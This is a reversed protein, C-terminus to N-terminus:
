ASSEVEATGARSGADDAAADGDAALDAPASSWFYRFAALLTLALVAQFVALALGVFSLLKSVTTVCLVIGVISLLMGLVWTWRRGRTVRLAVLAYLVTFLLAPVGYGLIVSYAAGSPSGASTQEFVASNGPGLLLAVGRGVAAILAIGAFVLSAAIAQAAQVPIPPTPKM